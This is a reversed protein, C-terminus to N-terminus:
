FLSQRNRRQRITFDGSEANHFLDIKRKNKSVAINTSLWSMISSFFPKIKSDSITILDDVVVDIGGLKTESRFLKSDFIAILDHVVVDIGGLKTESRFLFLMVVIKIVHPIRV